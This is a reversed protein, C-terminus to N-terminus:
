QVESWDLPITMHLQSGDSTSELRLDGGLSAIRERLSVPGRRAVTLESLNFRGIFPFGRGDDSVRLVVHDGGMEGHVRIHEASSHKAANAVAEHVLSFIEQRFSPSLLQIAMDMNIDVDIGWQVRIREKLQNLRGMLRAGIVDEAANSPRLRQIFTRLERQDEVILEQIERVRAQAEGPRDVILRHLTELQLAAGTLSQLLGDHLDRAVRLRDETIALQEAHSVFNFQDLRSTVVDAVIDGLVLDDSGLDPVDLLLLRGRFTEGALNLSLLSQISHRRTFEAAIAPGDVELVRGDRAILVPAHENAVDRCMFDVDRFGSTVTREDVGPPLRAWTSEGQESCTALNTWPEEDDEWILMARPARLVERARFLIEDLVGLLEHSGSRPWTALNFLEGRLREQYVGIAVVLAAAVALYVSRIIFRNLEFAPDRLVEAAWVGMGIFSGLTFVTTWIVGRTGFRLLASLIAFFVYVFFPSTPAETLYMFLAFAGLDVCHTTWRFVHSTGLSHWVVLAIIASYASYAALVSYTISVYRSPESADLWVATLASIALVLRGGAILREVRARPAYHVRM